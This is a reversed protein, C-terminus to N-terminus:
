SLRGCCNKYRKGSGCPCMQNRRVMTPAAALGQTREIKEAYDVGGQSPARFSFFTKGDSHSISIDGQSIVDMGLLCEAQGASTPAMIGANMIHIRIKNPLHVDVAYSAEGEQESHPTLSLEEIVRQSICSRHTATNWLAPYKCILEAPLQRNDDAYHSISVDFVIAPM